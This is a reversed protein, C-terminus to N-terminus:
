SFHYNFLPKLVSDSDTLNTPTQSRILKMHIAFFPKLHLQFLLNLAFILPSLNNRRLWLSSSEDSTPVGILLLGESAEIRSLKPWRASLKLESDAYMGAAGPVSPSRFLFAPLYTAKYPNHDVQPRTLIMRPSITRIITFISQFSLM